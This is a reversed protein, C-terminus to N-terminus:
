AQAQETKEKDTYACHGCYRWRQVTQTNKSAYRTRLTLFFLCSESQAAIQHSWRYLAETCMPEGINLFCLAQPKLKKLKTEGIFAWPTQLTRLYSSFSSLRVIRFRECWRSVKRSLGDRTVKSVRELLHAKVFAKRLRQPQLADIDVSVHVLITRTFHLKRLAGKRWRLVLLGINALHRWLVYFRKRRLGTHIRQVVYGRSGYANYHLSPELKNTKNTCPM